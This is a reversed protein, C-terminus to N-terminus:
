GQIDLAFVNLNPLFAIYLLWLSLGISLPISLNDDIMNSLSETITGVLAAVAGIVYEMPLYAVKPTLAVVILASVFFAIAGERTKKLFSQKGFKRGILAASTDSIILIAFATVTILKPFLWVCITASVLVYTAGTLRKADPRRERARLLWGFLSHFLQATPPHLYRAVDTIVFAATLPLLISLATSKPIFYYIVPISLSCLHIAKRILETSYSHEVNTLENM